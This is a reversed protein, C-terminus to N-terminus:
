EMLQRIHGCVTLLQSQDMRGIINRIVPAMARKVSELGVRATQESVFGVQALKLPRLFFHELGSDLL